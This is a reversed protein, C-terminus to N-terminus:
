RVRVRWLRGEHGNASYLINHDKDFAMFVAGGFNSPVPMATWPGKGNDESVFMEYGAPPYRPGAYLREGDGVLADSSPSGEILSWNVHDESMRVGGSGSLYLTGDEGVYSQSGAGNGPLETWTEGADATSYLGDFLTTYVYSSPGLAIISAAEAWGGLPGKLLRWNAGGDKTEAMCMPAFEGTCNEHFTAILHNPDDPGMAAWQVASAPTAASIVGGPPMVSDWDVGGNVSKLLTLNSGYLALTYLVAPDLKSQILLWNYGSAIVDSFRGTSVESWGSGCDDSRFIGSGVGTGLFITGSTVSDTIVNLAGIAGPPTIDEWVGVDALNDCEGVVPDPPDITGTTSTGTTVANGTTVSNGSTVNDTGTSDTTVPEGTTSAGSTAGSTTTGATASKGSTSNSGGGTGTSTSESTGSGTTDSSYSVPSGDEGSCAIAGGLLLGIMTVATHQM